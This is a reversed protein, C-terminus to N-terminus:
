TFIIYKLNFHNIKFFITYRHKINILHEVSSLNSKGCYKPGSIRNFKYEKHVNDTKLYCNKGEDTVTNTKYTWFKCEETKQCEMQCYTANLAISKKVDHGYFDLNEAFCEM